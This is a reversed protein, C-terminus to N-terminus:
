KKSSTAIAKLTEAPRWIKQIGVVSLAADGICCSPTPMISEAPVEAGERQAKDTHHRQKQSQHFNDIRCRSVFIEFNEFM